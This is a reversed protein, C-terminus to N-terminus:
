EKELRFTKLSAEFVPALKDGGDALTSCTVVFKTAGNGFSYFTQRLRKGQPESELTSRVGQLGATTTFQEPKLVLRSRAFVKQVTTMNTQVYADLTGAFAEDVVNINPAFGGAAPGVAVKYKLGPVTRIEWGGPPVFSFKGAETLRRAAPANEASATGGASAVLAILLAFPVMGPLRNM